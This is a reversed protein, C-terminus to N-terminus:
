RRQRCARPAVLLTAPSAIRAIAKEKLAWDAHLYIRSTAPSEHDFWLAVVTIDVGAHLLEM